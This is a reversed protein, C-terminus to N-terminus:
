LAVSIQGSYFAKQCIIPLQFYIQPSPMKQAHWTGDTQDLAPNLTEEGAETTMKPVWHRSSVVCVFLIFSSFSLVCLIQHLLYIFMRELSSFPQWSVKIVGACIQM